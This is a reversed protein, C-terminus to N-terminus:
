PMAMRRSGHITVPDESRQTKCCATQPTQQNKFKTQWAPCLPHPPPVAEGNLREERRFEEMERKLPEWYVRDKEQERRVEADLAARLKPLSGERALVLLPRTAELQSIEEPFRLNFEVLLEPSRAESLWFAVWDPSQKTSTERYHISVLAEIM